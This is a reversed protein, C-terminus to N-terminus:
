ESTLPKWLRRCGRSSRARSRFRHVVPNAKATPPRPVQLPFARVAVPQSCRHSAAPRLPGRRCLLGLPFQTAMARPLTASSPRFYSDSLPHTLPPQRGPFAAAFTRPMPRVSSQHRTTPARHLGVPLQTSPADSGRFTPRYADQSFQFAHQALKLTNHSTSPSEM